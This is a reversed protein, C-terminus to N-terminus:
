KSRVVLTHNFTYGGIAESYARAADGFQGLSLLTNARNILPQLGPPYLAAQEAVVATPSQSLVLLSLLPTLALIRM